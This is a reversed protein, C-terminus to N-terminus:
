WRPLSNARNRANNRVNTYEKKAYRLYEEYSELAKAMKEHASDKDDLKGFTTRFQDYDEGQWSASLQVVERQARTMTARMKQVYDHVESKTRELQDLDVRINAM